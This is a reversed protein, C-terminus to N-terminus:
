KHPPPPAKTTLRPVHITQPSLKRPTKPTNASTISKVSTISVKVGSNAWQAGGLGGGM